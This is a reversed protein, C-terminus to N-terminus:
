DIEKENKDNIVFISIEMQAVDLTDSHNRLFRKM